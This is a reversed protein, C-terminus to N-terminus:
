AVKQVNILTCMGYQCSVEVFLKEINAKVKVDFIRKFTCTKCAFYENCVSAKKENTLELNAVTSVKIKNKSPSKCFREFSSQKVKKGKLSKAADYSLTNQVCLLMTVFLLFYSYVKFKM